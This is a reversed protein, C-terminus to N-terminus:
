TGTNLTVDNPDETYPFITNVVDLTSQAFFPQGTHVVSGGVFTNNEAVTGNVHAKVHM